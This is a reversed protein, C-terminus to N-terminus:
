QTRMPKKFYDDPFINSFALIWMVYEITNVIYSGVFQLFFIFFFMCFRFSSKSVKTKFFLYIEVFLKVAVGLYGFTALVEAM